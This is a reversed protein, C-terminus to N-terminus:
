LNQEKNETQPDEGYATTTPPPPAPTVGAPADEEPTSELKAGPVGISIVDSPPPEPPPCDPAM